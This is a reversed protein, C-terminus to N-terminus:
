KLSDILVQMDQLTKDVSVGGFVGAIALKGEGNMYEASHKPPFQRTKRWKWWQSALESVPNAANLKKMYAADAYTSKYAPLEVSATIQHIEPKMQFLVFDIVAKKNKKFNEGYKNVVVGWGHAIGMPGGPGAPFNMVGVEDQLKNQMVLVSEDNWDRLMAAKGENLFSRAQAYSLAPVDKSSAKTFLDKMYTLAQKAKPDPNGGPALKWEEAGAQYLFEWFSHAFAGEEGTAIYGFQDIQGDGNLDRTLKTGTSMLEEWTTPVALGSEKFIKKNYFTYSQGQWWSVRFAGGWLQKYQLQIDTLDDKQAQTMYPWLDEWVGYAAGDLSFADDQYQVDTGSYKTSMWLTSKAVHDAWTTPGRVVDIAVTPHEPAWKAIIQQASENGWDPVYFLVKAKAGEGQGGAFAFSAVLLVLIMLVLKKM